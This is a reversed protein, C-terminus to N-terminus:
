MQTLNMKSTLLTRTYEASQNNKSKVFLKYMKNDYPVNVQWRDAVIDSYHMRTRGASLAVNWNSDKSNAQL